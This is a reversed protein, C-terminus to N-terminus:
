KPKDRVIGPKAFVDESEISASLDDGRKNELHLYSCGASEGRLPELRFIEHYALSHSHAGNYLFPITFPFYSMAQDFLQWASVILDPQGGQFYRQAFGKLAELKESPCEGSQFYNFAVTNASALNGFNWCGM